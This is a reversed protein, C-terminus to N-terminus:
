EGSSSKPKKSPKVNSLAAKNYRNIAYSTTLGGGIPTLGFGLRPMTTAYADSLTPHLIPYDTTPNAAMARCKRGLNHVRHHQHHNHNYNSKSNKAATFGSATSATATVPLDLWDSPNSTAIGTTDLRAALSTAASTAAAGNLQHQYPRHQLQNKTAENCRCSSSQVILTNARERDAAVQENYYQQQQQQNLHNLLALNQRLVNSTMTTTAPDTQSTLNRMSSSGSIWQRGAAVTATTATNAARCDQDSCSGGDGFYEDELQGRPSSCRRRLHQHRSRQRNTRALEEDEYDADEGRESGTPANEERREDKKVGEREEEDGGNDNDDDVRSSNTWRHQQQQHRTLDGDSSMLRKNDIRYFGKHALPAPSTQMQSQPLSNSTGGVSQYKNTNTYNPPASKCSSLPNSSGTARSKAYRFSQNTVGGSSRSGMGKLTIYYTPQAQGPRQNFFQQQQQNLQHNNLTAQPQRRQYLSLSITEDGVRVSDSQHMLDNANLKNNLKSGNLQQQEQQQQQLSRNSQQYNTFQQQLQHMHQQCTCIIPPSDAECCGIGHVDLSSLGYKQEECDHEQEADLDLDELEKRKLYRAFTFSSVSVLHLIFLLSFYVIDLGLSGRAVGNETAYHQHSHHYNHRQQPQQHQQIHLNSTSTDTTTTTKNQITM